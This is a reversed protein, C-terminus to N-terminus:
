GPQGPDVKRLTIHWHLAFAGWAPATLRDVATALVALPGPLMSRRTVGGSALYAFWPLLTLREIRLTPHDREFRGRDRVFVLWSLAQNADAMADSQDFTWDAAQDDYPEPHFSGFVARALPTHAVEIMSVVGGPVLTREAEAFFRAVEPIHHLCHTLVIARLSRDAFPLARADVVRDALGAVVDSTIVEPLLTRLYSGGSGLELLEGSAGQPVSAVDAILRRYWDDYCARLLPKHDLLARQAAFWAPSGMAVGRLSPEQLLM